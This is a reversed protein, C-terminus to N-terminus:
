ETQVPWFIEILVFKFKEGLGGEDKEAASQVKLRLNKNPYMKVLDIQSLVNLNQYTRRSSNWVVSGLFNFIVRPSLFLSRINNLRICSIGKYRLNDVVSASFGVAKTKDCDFQGSNQPLPLIPDIDRCYAKRQTNCLEQGQVKLHLKFKFAKAVVECGLFSLLM